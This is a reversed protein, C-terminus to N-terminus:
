EGLVLKYAMDFAMDRELKAMDGIAEKVAKQTMKNAEAIEKIKANVEAKTVKFGEAKVIAEMVLMEEIKRKSDGNIQEKLTDETMGMMQIYMEFEMGQQAIQQKFNQITYDTETDVMSKPAEVNALSILKDMVATHFKNNVETQKKETLQATIAAELEAVTTVGEFQKFEQAIEDTLAPVKKEKVDHVLCKFTVETGKLDEAHYDAPFTVLVEKEDGASAGVLQEEFGPIFSNSGLTLPYSEGKGGEFAVGDKFGEFDIVVIDGDVAADEKVEIVSKHDMLNKIEAQVDESTVNVEEKTIGESANAYGSIEIEPMVEVTGSVKFKKETIEVSSWDLDPRAIVELAEKAVFKPYYENLAMDIAEPYVSEVGYKKIFMTRPMKGKRFGDAELNAIKSDVATEIIATIEKATLNITFEVTNNTRNTEIKM